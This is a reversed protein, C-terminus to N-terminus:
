PVRVGNLGVRYMPLAKLGMLQERTAAINLGEAGAPVIFGQSQGDLDAYILLAPAEAAYPVFAKEGNLVFSDGERTARTRLANPDFDFQYEILAASFPQWDGAAIQPLYAQKQAESGALLVPMAFLGPVGVAYAASLDGHALAEAALAGTVASREGFGGYAAPISAQLIGLDWGKRILGHPLEGSEDAPRAVPQLDNSAYRGVADLLMAQEESPEFSYM